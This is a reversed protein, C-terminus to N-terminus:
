SQRPYAGPAVAESNDLRRIGFAAADDPGSQNHPILKYQRQPLLRSQAPLDQLNVKNSNSSLIILNIATAKAKVKAVDTCAM